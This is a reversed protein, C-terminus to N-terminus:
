AKFDKCLGLSNGSSVQKMPVLLRLRSGELDASAASARFNRM